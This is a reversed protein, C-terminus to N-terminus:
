HILKINFIEELKRCREIYSLHDDIDTLRCVAMIITDLIPTM